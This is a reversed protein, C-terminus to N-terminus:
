IRWFTTALEMEDEATKNKLSVDGAADLFKFEHLLSYFGFTLHETSTTGQLIYVLVTGNNGEYVEVTPVGRTEPLFLCLLAAILALGGM